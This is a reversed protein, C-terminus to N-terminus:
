EDVRKRRGAEVGYNFPNRCLPCTSQNSSSFWKYLCNSHFLNNCTQCRKDPTKKDPGIISYCIACETRGKLAGTINKHLASLGDIISGNSFTIVGQTNRLWSLWKKESVAVRNIGDVRVGELPYNEPFRIGVQMMLEDVEYGAFIEKSRKSVKVVLDKEDDPPPEQNAAWKEVEDLTDEVVIPSFYKRTWSEVALSTQRSDCSFFWNRVLGPTYNLCLYYLNVLLWHMSRSASETDNAKWMSYHRIMSNDIRARELNLPNASSHGLIIFMFNLLPGIYNETKLLESYDNRVKLSATTYSEFVILWSLLYGRVSSPFEAADSIDHVSPTNLLLSLLELPLQATTGDLLVNVSLEQQVKPLGRHLVDFAASQVLQFESAVLPYFETLDKVRDVPIKTMQRSLITDVFELPQTEKSRDLKLLKVLGDCCQERSLDFAEKLDENEDDAMNQLISYLKLSMGIMPLRENSMVGRDSVEWISVCFDFSTEWYSGYVDKIAPLLRQLARCSESALRADNGALDETWSLIQKVAFVLRNNAVPLDEDYVSLVSNLLVLQGLTKDCQAKAGAIDSVLRNCLNNVIKSSRLSDQLGILIASAGLVNSTSTKLIDLQTLWEESGDNQWGHAAVLAQMLVGLSKSAYYAAPTNTSSVELLKKMLHKVVLSTNKPSDNTNAQDRWHSASDAANKILQHFDTVFQRVDAVADLDQNSGFLKNDELLDIQNNALESSLALLYYLEVQLEAPLVDSMGEHALLSTTYMAMRLPVSYGNIDRSPRVNSTTSTNAVLFVSGAFPRIVGLAPTPAHILLPALADAWVKIDPFIAAPTTDSSKCIVNKAEQVLTDINLSQPGATELNDRIVHVLSSQNPSESGKTSSLKEVIARLTNARSAVTSDDIETLGLLKTILAVHVSSQSNLLTPQHKSISELLKMAEDVTDKTDLATILQELITASTASSFSSFTIATEFLTRAEAGGQIARLNNRLLFDQLSPNQQCSKSVADNAILKAITRSQSTSEPLALLGDVTSQWIREFDKEKGPLTRFLSLTSILYPGSPSLILKPLDNKLFSELAAMTEPSGSVLTPALQLASELTATASYPKGNRSVITALCSTIIRQSSPGLLDSSVPQAQKLVEAVLKFWRHSVAIVANQSANYDKSQEPLSTLIKSNFEKELRVWEAEFSSEGAGKVSLCIYLGKALTPINTGTAWTDNAPTPHLYQEFLPFVAEPLLKEQVSESSLVTILRETIRFYTAWAVGSNTRPEERNTIGRRFARLFEILPEPDSPIVGDPLDLMLRGVKNWYDPPGGQSGREIFTRLRSLPNKKAKYSTTWVEPYKSTLAVLLGLLQYASSTQSSKLGEAIFAHSILELDSEFISSAKALCVMMLQVTARRVFADECSAFAWISKNGSLIDEYKESHKLIIDKELTGLLNSLLSISSGVVRFYKAQMDDPSMTREDSLTQATEKLAEQAYKLIPTECRKFFLAMKAPTDLFSKTGDNAARAVARDRDYTGGLWTGVIRPIFKEMRKRASKLLETQLIHSLERVRRSNDISIRPYFKVWAELVADEVGGDQEFPHAQVYARLDELAKSKTTGDKKSLNKFAVVVNADSIASLNPPETLYSLTSGSSASGFGGFGAGSAVRSSSAQSKFQRKSM